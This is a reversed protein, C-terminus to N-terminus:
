MILSFPLHEQGSHVFLVVIIDIDSELEESLEITTQAITQSKGVGPKGWIFIARHNGSLYEHKIVKKISDSKM